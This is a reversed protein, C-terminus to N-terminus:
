KWIILECREFATGPKGTVILGPAFGIGGDRQQYLPVLPSRLIGRKAASFERTRYGPADYGGIKDWTDAIPSLSTVGADSLLEPVPVDFFPMSDSLVGLGWWRHVMEDGGDVLSGAIAELAQWSAVYRTFGAATRWPAYQRNIGTLHKTYAQDRGAFGPVAKSLHSSMMHFYHNQWTLFTTFYKAMGQFAMPSGGTEYPYQDMLQHMDGFAHAASDNDFKGKKDRTNVRGQHIKNIIDRQIVPDLMWLESEEYFRKSPGYKKYLREFKRTSAIYELARNHLDERTFGGMPKLKQNIYGKLM